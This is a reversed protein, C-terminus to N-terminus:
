PLDFLLAENDTDDTCIIHSEDKITMGDGAGVEHGNIHMAGSVMHIYVTRGPRINYELTHGAQMLLRYMYADQHIKLSNNDGQPSVILQLGDQVDFTKQQYGPEIGYENPEIWIQLFELVKDAAPNYESHRIGYGATMLQFEGASIQKTNGVSDKHEIVGHKVYSIIEMNEHSHTAFGAGPKIRDDNIVRLSSVGMHGPDYYNGFSFSHKSDLWSIQHSGREESKRIRIM